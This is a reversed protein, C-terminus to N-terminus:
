RPRGHRKNRSRKPRDRKTDKLVLDEPRADAATDEPEEDIPEPEPDPKTRTKSAVRGPAPTTEHEIDRVM